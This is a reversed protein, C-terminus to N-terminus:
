AGVKRATQEIAALMTHRCTHNSWYMATNSFGSGSQVVCAAHAIVAMEVFLPMFQATANRSPPVADLHLAQTASPAVVGSIYGRRIAWRVYHNDSLFAIPTRRVDIGLKDALRYSFDIASTLVQVPLLPCPSAPMGLSIWAHVRLRVCTLM